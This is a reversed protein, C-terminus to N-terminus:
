ERNGGDERREVGEGQEADEGSGPQTTVGRAPLYAWRKTAELVGTAM